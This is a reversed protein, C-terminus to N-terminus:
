IPGSHGPPPKPPKKDAWKTVSKGQQLALIDNFSLSRVRDTLAKYEAQPLINAYGSIDTPKQADPIAAVREASEPKLKLIRTLTGPDANAIAKATCQGACPPEPRFPYITCDCPPTSSAALVSSSVCMAVILRLANKM